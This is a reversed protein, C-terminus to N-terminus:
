GKEIHLTSHLVHILQNADRKGKDKKRDSVVVGRQGRGFAVCCGAALCCTIYSVSSGSEEFSAISM